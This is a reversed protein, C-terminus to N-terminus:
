EACPLIELPRPEPPGFGVRHTLSTWSPALRRRGVSPRLQQAPHHGHPHPRTTPLSPLPPLLPCCRAFTRSPDGPSGPRVKAGEPADDVADLSRRDAPTSARGQGRDGRAGISCVVCTRVRSAAGSRNCRLHTVPDRTVVPLRPSDPARGRPRGDARRVRCRASLRVVVVVWGFRSPVPVTLADLLGIPDLSRLTSSPPRTLPSRAPSVDPGPQKPNVNM